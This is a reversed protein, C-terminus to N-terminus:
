SSRTNARGDVLESRQHRRAKLVADHITAPRGQPDTAPRPRKEAALVDWRDRDLLDAIEDATYYVDRTSPRHIGTELDSIDHGVVLLTGGPAVARVLGM